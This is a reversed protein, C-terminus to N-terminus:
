FYFAFHWRSISTIHRDLHSRGTPDPQPPLIDCTSLTAPDTFVDFCVCVCACLTQRSTQFCGCQFIGTPALRDSGGWRSAPHLLVLFFLSLSFSCLCLAHHQPAPPSTFHPSTAFFFFFFFEVFSFNLYSSLLSLSLSLPSRSLSASIISFHYLVSPYEIELRKSMLFTSFLCLLHLIGASTLNVGHVHRCDVVTFVCVGNVGM